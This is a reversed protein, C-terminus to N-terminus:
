LAKTMLMWQKGESPWQEKVMERMAVIRFGLRRYIRIASENNDSAILSMYREGAERAMGESLAILRSGLGRRRYEPFVALTNIYWSDPAIDELERLPVFIPPVKADDIAEPGSHQPYGILCAVCTGGIEAVLANTCSFKGEARAALRRGVDWGTEGAEASKEWLYLPLGKGAFNVLETLAVVDNRTGKRFPSNLM